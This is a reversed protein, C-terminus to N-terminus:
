RVKKRKNLYNMNIECSIGPCDLELACKEYSPAKLKQFSPNTSMGWGECPLGMFYNMCNSKDEDDLVSIAFTGYPLGPIEVKLKGNELSEKTWKFSFEPNNIWQDEASYVGVVIEGIDSRIDTLTIM